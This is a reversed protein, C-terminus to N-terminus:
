NDIRMQDLNGEWKLKGRLNKLITQKKLLVILKLGEEVAAKKTKFQGLKMAAAMLKDNIIINTRM